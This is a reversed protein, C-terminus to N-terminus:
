AELRWPRRSSGPRFRARCRPPPMRELMTTTLSLSRCSGRPMRWKPPTVSRRTTSWDFRRAWLARCAACAADLAASSASARTRSALSLDFTICISMRSSTCTHDDRWM